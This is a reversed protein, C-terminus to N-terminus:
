PALFYIQLSKPLMVPDRFMERTIPCLLHYPEEVKVRQAVPEEDDEDATLDIVPRERKVM